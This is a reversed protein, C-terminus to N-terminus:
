SDQAGEPSTTDGCVLSEGTLLEFEGCRIAERLFFDLTDEVSKELEVVPTWNLLRGANRISPKRHAMDQYGQGYYARSEVERFGAFPPFRSHLPHEKFKRVLLQALERISAENDPNGINIIRGDCVDGKNEIIRFLCEVGDSM